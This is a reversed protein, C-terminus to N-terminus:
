TYQTVSLSLYVSLSLVQPGPLMTHSPKWYGVGGFRTVAEKVSEFPASTDIEARFGREMNMCPGVESGSKDSGLSFVGNSGSEPGEPVGLFGRSGCDLTEAM